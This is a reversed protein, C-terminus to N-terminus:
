AATARASNTRLDDLVGADPVIAPPAVFGRRRKVVLYAFEGPGIRRQFLHVFGEECAWAARRALLRLTKQQAAPLTALAIDLALFGRHYELVDGPAAEGIWACLALETLPHVPTFVFTLNM